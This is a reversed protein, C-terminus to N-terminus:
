ATPMIVIRKRAAFFMFGGCVAALLFYALTPPEPTATMAVYNDSMTFYGIPQTESFALWEGSDNSGNTLFTLDYSEILNGSTGYVDIVTPTSGGPVYNFLDGFENVPKTFAITMTDTVGYTDFSDNVGVMPGVGSDWYGNSGFGYGQNYGFVSGGQNGTNTSSWTYNGWSIPGGGYYNAAPISIRDAVPVSGVIVTARATLTGAVLLAIALLFLKKM